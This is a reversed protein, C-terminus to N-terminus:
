LIASHDDIMAVEYHLMYVDEDDDNVYKDDRISAVIIIGPRPLEPPPRPPPLRALM